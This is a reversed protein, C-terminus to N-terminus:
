QRSSTSTIPPNRRSVRLENGDALQRVGAHARRRGKTLTWVVDECTSPPPAADRFDIRTSLSPVTVCSRLRGRNEVRHGARRRLARRSRRQKPQHGHQLRL